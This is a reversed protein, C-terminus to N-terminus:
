DPFSVPFTHTHTYIILHYTSHPSFALHSSSHHFSPPTLGLASCCLGPHASLSGREAQSCGLLAAPWARFAAALLLAGAPHLRSPRAPRPPLMLTVLLLAHATRSAVSSLEMEEPHSPSGAPAGGDTNEFSGQPLPASPSAYLGAGGLSPPAMHPPRPPDNPSKTAPCAEPHM